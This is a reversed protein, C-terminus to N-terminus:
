SSLIYKDLSYKEIHKQPYDFYSIPNRNYSTKNNSGNILVQSYPTTLFISLGKNM